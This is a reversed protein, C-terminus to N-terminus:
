AVFADHLARQMADTGSAAPRVVASLRLSNAYCADAAKGAPLGCCLEADGKRRQVPPHLLIQTFNLFEIFVQTRFLSFLDRCLPSFTKAALPPTSSLKVWGGAHCMSVGIFDTVWAWM